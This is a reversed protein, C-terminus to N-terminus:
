IRNIAEVLTEIDLYTYVRETLTVAGSRGVIKKIIPQDIHAALVFICTHRPVTRCRTM